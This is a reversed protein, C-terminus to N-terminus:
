NINSNRWSHWRRPKPAINRLCTRQQNIHAFPEWNIQFNAHSEFVVFELCRSNSNTNTPTFRHLLHAITAGSGWMAFSGLFIVFYLNWSKHALKLLDIEGIKFSPLWKENSSTKLSPAIFLGVWIEQEELGSNINRNLYVVYCFKL